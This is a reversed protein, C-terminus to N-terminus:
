ASDILLFQLSSPLRDLSQSCPSDQIILITLCPPLHDLSPVSLNSLSLKLLTRPLADLITLGSDVAYLALSTLSSPLSSCTLPLPALDDVILATSESDELA